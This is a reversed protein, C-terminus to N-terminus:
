LENAWRAGVATGLAVVACVIFPVPSGGDKWVGGCYLMFVAAILAVASFMYVLYKMACGM